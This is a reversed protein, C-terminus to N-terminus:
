SCLDPATLHHNLHLQQHPRFPCSADGTSGCGKSSPSGTGGRASGYGQTSPSNLHSSESSPLGPAARAPCRGTLTEAGRGPGPSARSPTPTGRGREQHEEQHLPAQLRAAPHLLSAERGRQLSCAFEQQFNRWTLMLEGRTEWWSRPVWRGTLLPSWPLAASPAAGGHPQGPGRDAAQTTFRGRDRFRTRLPRCPQPM